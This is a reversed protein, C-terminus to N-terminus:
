LIGLGRAVGRTKRVQVGIARPKGYRSVSIAPPRIANAKAPRWEIVTRPVEVRQKSPAEDAALHPAPQGIVVASPQEPRAHSPHPTGRARKSCTAHPAPSRHRAHPHPRPTRHSDNRPM